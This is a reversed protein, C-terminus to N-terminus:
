ILICNTRAKTKDKYKDKGHKKFTFQLGPPGGTRDGETGKGRWDGGCLLPLCLTDPALM